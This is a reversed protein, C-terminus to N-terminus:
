KIQQHFMLRDEQIRVEKDIDILHIQNMTKDVIEMMQEKDLLTSQERSKRMIEHM